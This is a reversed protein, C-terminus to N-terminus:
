WIPLTARLDRPPFFTAEKNSVKKHQMTKDRRALPPFDPLTSDSAPFAMKM